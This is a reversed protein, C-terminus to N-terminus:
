PYFSLRIKRCNLIRLTNLIRKEGIEVMIEEMPKSYKSALLRARDEKPSNLINLRDLDALGPWWDMHEFSQSMEFAFIPSDKEGLNGEEISSKELTSSDTAM